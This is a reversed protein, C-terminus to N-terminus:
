EPDANLARWAEEEFNGTLGGESSRWPFPYPSYLRTSLGQLSAAFQKGLQVSLTAPLPIAGAHEAYDHTIVVGQGKLRDVVESTYLTRFAAVAESLDAAREIAATRNLDEQLRSVYYTIFAFAAVFVVALLVIPGGVGFFAALRARQSSMAAGVVVSPDVKM